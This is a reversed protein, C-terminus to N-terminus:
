ASQHRDRKLLRLARKMLLSSQTTPRVRFQFLYQVSRQPKRSALRPALYVLCTSPYSDQLHAIHKPTQSINTARPACSVPLPIRARALSVAQLERSVFNHVCWFMTCRQSPTLFRVSDCLLTLISRKHQPLYLLISQIFQVIFQESRVPTGYFFISCFRSHM